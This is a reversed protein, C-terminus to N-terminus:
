QGGGAVEMQEPTGDPAGGPIGPQKGEPSISFVRRLNGQPPVVPAPPGPTASLAIFTAPTEM